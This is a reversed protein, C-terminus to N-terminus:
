DYWSDAWKLYASRTGSKELVDKLAQMRMRKSPDENPPGIVSDLFIVVAICVAQDFRNLSRDCLQELADAVIERPHSNQFDTDLEFEKLCRTRSFVGWPIGAADCGVAIAEKFARLKNPDPMSDEM